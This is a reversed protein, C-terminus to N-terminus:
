HLLQLLVQSEHYKWQNNNARAWNDPKTGMLYMVSRNRDDVSSASGDLYLTSYGVQHSWYGAGLKVNDMYQAKESMWIRHTPDISIFMNKVLMQGDVPSPKPETCLELDTDKLVGEPRSRLRWARHEAIGSSMTAAVPALLVLCLVLHRAGHPSQM